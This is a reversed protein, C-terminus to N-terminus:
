QTEGRTPEQLGSTPLVQSWAVKAVGDAGWTADTACWRGALLEDLDTAPVAVIAEIVGGAEYVALLYLGDAACLEDHSQRKVYWRGRRRGSGNSIWQQAGKIEVPTEAPVHTTELVRLRDGPSLPATTRADHWEAAEDTVPALADYCDIVLEELVTGQQKPDAEPVIAESM